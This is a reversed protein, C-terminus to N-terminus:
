ALINRSSTGGDLAREFGAVRGELGNMWSASISSEAESATAWWGGAKLAAAATARQPLPWRGDSEVEAMSKASGMVPRDAGGEGLRCPTSSCALRMRRALRSPREWGMVLRWRERESPSPVSPSADPEAEADDMDSM